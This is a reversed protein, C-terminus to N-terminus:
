ARQPVTVDSLCKVIIFLVKLFLMPYSPPLVYLNPLPIAIFVPEASKKSAYLIVLIYVVISPHVKMFLSWNSTYASLPCKFKVLQKNLLLVQTYTGEALSFKVIVYLIVFLVKIEGIPDENYLLRDLM